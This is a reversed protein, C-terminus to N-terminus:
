AKRGRRVIRTQLHTDTVFRQRVAADLEAALGGAEDIHLWPRRPGRHWPPESRMKSIWRTAL